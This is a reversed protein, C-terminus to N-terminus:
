GYLSRQFITKHLSPRPGTPRGDGGAEPGRSVGVMVKGSESARAM